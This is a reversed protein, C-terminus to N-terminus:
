ELVVVALGDRELQVSAGTASGEVRFGGLGDHGRYSRGDCTVSTEEADSCSQTLVVALRNDAVFARAQIAPNEITFRETDCYRGVLILDAYKDRLRNAEGLYAAYRPTAAVTRRCRYVEADTRLGKLLCHNVKREMDVEDRIERDTLVIEPFTYRFWDIFGTPGAAGWQSHIYDAHQAARDSLLEIGIGMEPDREKVHARLKQLIGVKAGATHMWPVPHGHSPDCCPYEGSGMQDYFVSGCGHEFARDAIRCLLQYWQESSPCAKVFTRNAFNGAFNGRGRFRYFERIEIGLHDKISIQHGTKRYYDSAADILRANSYLFVKGGADNFAAIGQKLAQEGGLDPDPVYEPYNNDMGGKQWGFMLYADLGAAVGDAHIRPLDDYRYHIEGYQHKLIIRQFGKLRRVWDPPDPPRFWSDAWSRYRRAAEHWTGAYPALVFDCLGARQGRELHPYRVMGCELADGYLRVQHETFEDSNQHCGVYLGEAEDCFAYCNTSATAGPYGIAMQTFLHESAFYLKPQQLERRVDAFREGGWRSWVMAQGPKLQLGGVLPFHCERVVVDASHNQVELRWRTADGELHVSATVAIQVAEGHVRVSECHLRIEEGQRSLSPTCDRADVEVDLASATQLYLRWVPHGGAYNHGTQLNRM